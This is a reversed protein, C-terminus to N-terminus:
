VVAMMKQVERVIRKSEDFSIWQEAEALNVWRSECVEGEQLVIKGHV